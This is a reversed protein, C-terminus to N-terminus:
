EKNNKNIFNKIKQQAEENLFLESVTKAEIDLRTEFALNGVSLQSMKKLESLARRSRRSLKLALNNVEHEFSEPTFVYNVIGWEKMTEASFQGGFYLIEKVRNLGIKQILRQTGGGGPILALHVEPLGFSAESSAVVIDCALMIEFGGGLAYGNVAAIYPKKSNEILKYLSIGKEQFSYFEQETQSGYEKIDAGAMFAKGRGTIVAVFIEDDNNIDELASIIEDMFVRNMSNLQEPRNFIITAINKEKILELFNYM